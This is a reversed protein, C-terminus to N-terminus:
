YPATLDHITARSYDLGKAVYNLAGGPMHRSRLYAVRARGLYGEPDSYSKHAQLGTAGVATGIAKNKLTNAPLVSGFLKGAASAGADMVGGVVGACKQIMALKHFFKADRCIKM